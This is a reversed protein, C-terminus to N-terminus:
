SVKDAWAEPRQDEGGAELREAIEDHKQQWLM